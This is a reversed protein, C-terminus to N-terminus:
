PKASSNLGNARMSAPRRGQAMRTRIRAMLDAIACERLLTASAYWNTREGEIGWRWDFPRRLLIWTEQGLAGSLHAVSTCISIVLDLSDVLAATDDFTRLEATFDQMPFIGIQPDPDVHLNVLNIGDISALPALSALEVSRYLNARMDPNGSWQLGVNFRDCPLRSQWRARLVPDSRLYPAPDVSSMLGGFLAPLDMCWGHLPTAPPPDSAPLFKLNPFSRRLLDCLPAQVVFQARPARAAVAPFYRAVQLVDGFGQENHITLAEQTTEGLWRRGPLQRVAIALRADYHPRASAFAGALMLGFDLHAGPSTPELAIGRLAWTIADDYDGRIQAASMRDHILGADAPEMQLGAEIVRAMEEPRRALFLVESRCHYNEAEQPFRRCLRALAPDAEAKRATFALSLARLRLAETLGPDICLAAEFAQVAEASRGERM